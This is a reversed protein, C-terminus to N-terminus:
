VCLEAIFFTSLYRLFGMCFLARQSLCGNAKTKEAAFLKILQYAWFIHGSGQLLYEPRSWSRLYQAILAIHQEGWHTHPSQPSCAPTHNKISSVLLITAYSRLKLVWLSM